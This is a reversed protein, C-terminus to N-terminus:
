PHFGSDVRIDDGRKNDVSPETPLQLELTEKLVTSQQELVDAEVALDQAEPLSDPVTMAIDWAQSALNELAALTKGASHLNARAAKCANSGNQDGACVKEVIAKAAAYAKRAEELLAAIRLAADKAQIRAVLYPELQTSPISSPIIAQVM